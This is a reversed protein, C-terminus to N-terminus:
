RGDFEASLGLVSLPCGYHNSLDFGSETVALPSRRTKARERRAIENLIADGIHTGPLRNTM